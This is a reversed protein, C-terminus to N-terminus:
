RNAPFSEQGLCETQPPATTANKPDAISLRTSRISYAAMCVSFSSIVRASSLIQSIGTLM